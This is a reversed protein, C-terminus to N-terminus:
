EVVRSYGHWAKQVLARVIQKIYERRTQATCLDDDSVAMEEAALHAVNECVTVGKETLEISANHAVLAGGPRAGIVVRWGEERVAVAATIYPIQTKEQRIAAYAAYVKEKAIRIELIDEGLPPCSIYDRVCMRGKHRLVVDVKLSILFPILLSQPNKSAIVAGISLPDTELTDQIDQLFQVFTGGAIDQLLTNNRLVQLTTNAGIAIEEVCDSIYVGAECESECPTLVAAIEQEEYMYTNHREKM